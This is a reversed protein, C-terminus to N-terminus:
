VNGIRGAHHGAFSHGGEERQLGGHPHKARSCWAPLDLNQKTVSHDNIYLYRKLDRIEIRKPLFIRCSLPIASDCPLDLNLQQPVIM